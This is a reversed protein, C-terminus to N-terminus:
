NYENNRKRKKCIKTKKFVRTSLIKKDANIISDLLIVSLCPYRKKERPM